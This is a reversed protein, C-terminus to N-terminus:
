ARNEGSLAGPRRGYLAGPNTALTTALDLFEFSLLLAM